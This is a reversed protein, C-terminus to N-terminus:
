TNSHQFHQKFINFHTWKRVKFPAFSVYSKYTFLERFQTGKTTIWKVMRTMNDFSQSKSFLDYSRVQEELFKKLFM